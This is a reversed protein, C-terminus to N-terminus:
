TIKSESSEAATAAGGHRRDVISLDFCLFSLNSACVTGAIVGLVAVVAACIADQILSHFTAVTPVWLRLLTSIGLVYSDVIPVQYYAGAYM